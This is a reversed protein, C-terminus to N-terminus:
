LILFLIGIGLIEGSILAIFGPTVLKFLEKSGMFITLFWKLLTNITAALIISVVGTLLTIEDGKFLKLVSLTIVDVDSLGSIAAILYLGYDGLYKLTTKSIFLIFAYFAGFKIANSLEYPNKIEVKTVEERELSSIRYAFFIGILFATLFPIVLYETFKLNVIGVIFIIRPFMIASASIIGAAYEHLLVKNTKSLSSFTAAVATSSVLGGLLGAFLIGREGFVKTLFYGLFDLTSIIVVMTWVERPNVGYFNKDPLLPYLIVTVAAFKLFAFLDEVNLNKVFDHMQEKFTLIFLITVAIASALQLEEKYCLIGILFTLLASIESTLGPLKEFFQAIVLLASFAFFVVYLFSSGLYTAIHSSLTGLLAILIFTRIGGFTSIGEKQKKFEREIGVLGGLIASVFYPEYLRWVESNILEKLFDVM